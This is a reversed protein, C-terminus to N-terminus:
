RWDQFAKYEWHVLSDYVGGTLYYAPNATVETWPNLHELQRYGLYQIVGGRQPTLAAERSSDITPSNSQTSLGSSQSKPSCAGLFAAAGAGSVGLFMRRKMRRGFASPASGTAFATKRAVKM